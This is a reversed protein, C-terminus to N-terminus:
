FAVTSRLGGILSVYAAGDRNGYTNSQEQGFLTISTELYGGVAWAQYDARPHYNVGLRAGLVIAPFVESHEMLMHGGIYEVWDTFGFRFGPTIGLYPDIRAKALIHVLLQLGPMLYRCSKFQDRVTYDYNSGATAGPMDFGCANGTDIQGYEAFVGFNVHRGLRLAAEARLTLVAPRDGRLKVGTGLGVGFEASPNDDRPAVEVEVEVANELPVDVTRSEDATILVDQQLAYAHPATVRLTHSGAELKGEFRGIGVRKGDLFIVSNARSTVVLAGIHSKPPPTPVNDLAPLDLTTSSKSAITIQKTWAVYGDAHAAITHEGPDIPMNTGILATITSGDRTVVLGDIARSPPAIYLHALQPELAAVRELATRERPDTRQHALAAADKYETYASAIRGIHEHCEAVHLLVGIQPDAHFSAEYLPCAQDWKGQAEFAQAQDFAVSATDDARAGHATVLVAAVALWRM